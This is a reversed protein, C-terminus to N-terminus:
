ANHQEYKYCTTAMNDYSSFLAGWFLLIELHFFIKDETVEQM